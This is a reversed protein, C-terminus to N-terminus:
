AGREGIAALVIARMAVNRDVGQSAVYLRICLLFPNIGLSAFFHQEGVKHLADRDERHCSGCLPVTWQDLPKAGMAQRKGHMASNQRIHAAEGCPELGCKICPLERMAALHAYNSLAASARDAQKRATHARKLLSGMPAAPTLRQPLPRM